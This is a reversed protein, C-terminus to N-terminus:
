SPSRQRYLTPDIAAAMADPDLPAAPTGAFAAIAAAVAAPTAILARHGVALMEAGPTAEAWARAATLHRAFVPALAAASGAPRGLRALMAAQSALVEDMDREALVVRYEPGAPLFPVLPAVVKVVHGEAEGIWSADRALAKVRAHEFYGRPNSADAPRMDDVFAPLGGAVLMQMLASTGARPLGSVVVIM